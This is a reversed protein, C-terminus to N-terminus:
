KRLIKALEKRDPCWRGLYDSWRPRIWHRDEKSMVCINSVERIVPMVLGDWDRCNLIALRSRLRLSGHARRRDLKGSPYTVVPARKRSRSMRM